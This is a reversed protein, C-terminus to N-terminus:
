GKEKERKEKIKRKEKKRGCPWFVTPFGGAKKKYKVVPFLYFAVHIKGSFHSQRWVDLYYFFMVKLM